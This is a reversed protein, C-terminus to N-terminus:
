PRVPGCNGPWCYSMVTWWTTAAAGHNFCGAGFSYDSQYSTFSLPGSWNLTLADTTETYSGHGRVFCQQEAACRAPM